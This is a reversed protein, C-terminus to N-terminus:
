AAGSPLALRGEFPLWERRRYGSGSPGSQLICAPHGVRVPQAGLLRHHADSFLLRPGRLTGTLVDPGSLEAPVDM